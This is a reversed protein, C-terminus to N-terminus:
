KGASCSVGTVNRVHRHSFHQGLLMQQGWRKTVFSLFTPGVHLRGKNSISIWRDLWCSKAESLSFIALYPRGCHRSESVSSLLWLTDVRLHLWLECWQVVCVHAYIRSHIRSTWRWLVVYPICLTYALFSATLWSITEARFWLLGTASIPSRKAVISMPQFTHLQQAGKPPRPLPDGDLATHGPSLGVETYWTADQDM